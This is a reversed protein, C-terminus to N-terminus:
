DTLVFRTNLLRCCSHTSNETQTYKKSVWEYTTQGTCMLFTHLVSLTGVFGIGFVFFVILIGSVLCDRVLEWAILGVPNIEQQLLRGFIDIIALVFESICVAEGLLCGLTVSYIFTIFYRYNRQGICTGTWPCHHDFQDVCNDCTPCHSSRPPKYLGCTVITLYTFTNILQKVYANKLFKGCYKYEIETGAVVIFQSSAPMIATTNVAQANNKHIEDIQSDDYYKRPVIGPDTTATLLLSGMVILGALLALVLLPISAWLPLNRFYWHWVFAPFSIWPILILVITLFLMSLQPGLMIHGCCLVINNGWFVQYRHTRSQKQTQSNSDATTM